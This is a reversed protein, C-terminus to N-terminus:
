KGELLRGQSDLVHVSREDRGRYRIWLEDATLGSDPHWRANGKLWWLANYESQDEAMYGRWSTESLSSDNAISVSETTTYKTKLNSATCSLLPGAGIMLYIKM